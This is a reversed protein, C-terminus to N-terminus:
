KRRYTDEFLKEDETYATQPTYTTKKVRRQSRADDFGQNYALMYADKEAEYEEHEDPLLIMHGEENSDWTGGRSYGKWAIDDLAQEYLREDVHHLTDVFQRATFTVEGDADPTPPAPRQPWGEARNILNQHGSFNLSAHDFDGHIASSEALENATYNGLATGSSLNLFDANKEDKLGEKYPDEFIDNLQKSAYKKRRRTEWGKKAAQSRKQRKEKRTVHDSMDVPMLDVVAPKDTNRMNEWDVNYRGDDFYGKLTPGLLHDDTIILTNQPKYGKQKMDDLIRKVSMGGGGPRCVELFKEKDLQNFSVADRFWHEFPQVVFPLDIVGAEVGEVIVEWMIDTNTLHGMGADYQSYRGHLRSQSMSGSADCYIVNYPGSSPDPYYFEIMDMADKLAVRSQMAEAVEDFVPAELVESEFTGRGRNTYYLLGASLLAMSGIFYGQSKPGPMKGTYTDSLVMGGAIANYGIVFGLGSALLM